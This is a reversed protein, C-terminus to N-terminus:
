VLHSTPDEIEKIRDVDFVKDYKGDRLNKIAKRVVKISRRVEEESRGEIILLDSVTTIYEDLQDAYSQITQAPLLLNGYEDYFDSYQNKNKKKSM